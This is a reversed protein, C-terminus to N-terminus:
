WAAPRWRSWRPQQDDSAMETKLKRHVLSHTFVLGELRAHMSAKAYCWDGYRVPRRYLCRNEVVPMAVGLKV